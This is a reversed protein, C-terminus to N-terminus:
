DIVILYFENHKKKLNKCQGPKFYALIYFKYM